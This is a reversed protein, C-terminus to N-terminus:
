FGKGVGVFWFFGPFWITSKIIVHVYTHGCIDTFHRQTYYQQYETQHHYIGDQKGDQQHAHALRGVATPFVHFLNVSHYHIRRIDRAAFIVVLTPRWFHATLVWLEALFVLLILIRVYNHIRWTYVFLMWERSSCSRIMLINLWHTCLMKQMIINLIMMDWGRGVKKIKLPM